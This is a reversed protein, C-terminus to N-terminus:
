CKSSELLNKFYGYDSITINDIIKRKGKKDQEDYIDIKKQFYEKTLKFTTEVQKSYDEDINFDKYALSFKQVLV